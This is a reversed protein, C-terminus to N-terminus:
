EPGTQGVIDPQNFITPSQADKVMVKFSADLAGDSSCTVTHMGVEFFTGSAPECTVPGCDNGCVGPTPYKVTAGCTGPDNNVTIDDPTIIQCKGPLPDVALSRLRSTEGGADEGTNAGSEEIISLKGDSAISLTEVRQHLRFAVFLFKGSANVELGSTVEGFSTPFPSGEVLSLNGGAGIRLVSIAEGSSGRGVFLFKGNPSIAIPTGLGTIDFVFPAGDVLSISGNQAVNFVDVAQQNTFEKGVFLLSGDCNFLSDSTRGFGSGDFPTGPVPSITGDAAIAYMGLKGNADANGVFITVALFRGDPSVSMEHPNINDGVHESELETMTGDDNIRLVHIRDNNPNGMYLTKEDPTVALSLQEDDGGDGLNIISIFTLAGTAPDIKFSAVEQDGESTAFLYPGKNTILIGDNTNGQDTSGGGGDTGKPFGPLLELKGDAKVKFGSVSNNAVRDNNTYVFKGQADASSIFLTFLFSVAVTINFIARKM